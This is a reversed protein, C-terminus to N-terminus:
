VRTWWKLFKKLKNRYPDARHVEMVYRGFSISNGTRTNRICYEATKSGKRPLTMWVSPRIYFDGVSNHCKPCVITHILWPIEHVKARSFGMNIDKDVDIIGSCDKFMCRIKM